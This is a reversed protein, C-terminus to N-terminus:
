FVIKHVPSKYDEDGFHERLAKGVAQIGAVLASLIAPYFVVAWLSRIFGSFGLKLGDSIIEAGDFAVLFSAFTVIFASLFARSFRWAIKKWTPYEKTAM